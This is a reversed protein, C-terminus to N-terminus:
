GFTFAFAEVGPDLFRIEFSRERIAGGQRILQYLRQERVVGEGKDDVDMGHDGAPPRGDLTVRFRVPTGGKAPGLVLHLDRARFRYVITGDAAALSAHERGVTWDGTLAWDNFALDAAAYTRRTDRAIGGPSVFREAREFGLYTEPSMVGETGSAASAGQADVAVLGSGVDAHGAEALLRQIVRESEAYDGEGFHHRRIRGQADVFFHAPWYQNGWERWIAYDSDVAVPYGIKLDAVARKVNGLDKEFAFEPSHVGIVVLGQAAYKEAWARVYPVSRLCNICSYTWFDVVVVKGKLAAKTLPPSNLWAVAGALERMEGEVPLPREPGPAPAAAM